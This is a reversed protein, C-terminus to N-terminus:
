PTIYAPAGQVQLTVSIVPVTDVAGGINGPVLTVTARFGEGGAIPYFDMVVVDGANDFLFKSLSDTTEWDQIGSINAVWTASGPFSHVSAPTLGKWQFTNVTPVFEVSSVSTEYNNAAVKLTANTLAFPAAAILAM